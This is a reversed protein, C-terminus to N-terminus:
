QADLMSRLCQMANNTVLAQHNQFSLTGIGYDRQTLCINDPMLAMNDRHQCAANNIDQLMQKGCLSNPLRKSNFDNADLAYPMWHM